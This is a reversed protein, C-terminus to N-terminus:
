DLGEVKNPVLKVLQDLKLAVEFNPDLEFVKQLVSKAEKFRKLQYLILAEQFFADRYDSKEKTINQWLLLERKLLDPKTQLAIINDLNQGLEKSPKILMAVQLENEAQKYAFVSAFNKALEQHAQLNNSRALVELKAKEFTTLPLPLILFFLYAAGLAMVFRMWRFKPIIEFLKQRAKKVRATIKRFIHTLYELQKKM